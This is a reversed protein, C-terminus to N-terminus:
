KHRDGEDEGDEDEVADFVIECCDNNCGMRITTEQIDVM